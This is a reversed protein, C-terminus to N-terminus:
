QDRLIIVPDVRSVRRAPLYSAGLAVGILLALGLAQTPLDTPEVQFLLDRLWRVALQALALGVALGVLVPVMGKRVVAWSINRRVAGLALRVGFERTRQNVSYSVVSYVGAAALVLALLAFLGLLTATFRERAISGAVHDPLTRLDSLPLTPDVEQVARRLTDVLGVSATAPRAVLTVTSSPSQLLPLYLEMAPEVETPDQRVDGVVGVVTVWRAEESGAEDFTFRRGLPDEGPWVGQAMPRNVLAVPPSEPADEWTLDRGGLFPIGMARLYGPSVLRAKASLREPSGAAPPGEPAFGFVMQSRGLHIPFVAGAQEVGPLRQLRPVLERFFAVQQAEEPYGEEPLTLDALQAPGVEFGLDVRQLRAFSEFLLGAAVVVVVALAFQSVVLAARLGAARKSEGGRAQGGGRLVPQIQIRSARLSPLLGLALGTLAALAFAFLFVWLDFGIEAARPIAEPLLALLFRTAWLGLGLGIAAGVTTLALAEVVLLRGLGRRGAGLATRIAMEGQRDLLRALLLNAVNACTILLVLAVAGTLVLLAPRIDEVLLDRLSEVRVEWGQNTAPHEQELQRAILDMEAQAEGLSVGDGVRGVVRLWRSGRQEESVELAM